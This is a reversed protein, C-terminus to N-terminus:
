GIQLEPGQCEAFNIGIHSIIKESPIEIAGFGMCYVAMM